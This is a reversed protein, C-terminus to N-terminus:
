RRARGGRAEAAASPAGGRPVRPLWCRVRERYAAFAAGFRAELDAEEQPRILFNWVLGGAIAYAVILWSGLMLGVAAGQALSSVAMPNRVIRYPGAIVLEAPMAAPLPTGRGRTSMTAAAWIGAVGAGAFLLLGAGRLWVPSDLALGWRHEILSIAAPILALFVLWFVAVQQATRRRHARPSAPAAIRFRFPGRIVLEAPIRGTILLIAAGTSGVAAAIMLLAGWGALGTVTAYGAMGLAVLAAWPAAIWAGARFGLAAAASAFVFLPLDLWFIPIPNLAGLTASRVAPVTAVGVWWLTGM